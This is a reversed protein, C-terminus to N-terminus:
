VGGSTYLLSVYNPGVAVHRKEESMSQYWERHVNEHWEGLVLVSPHNKRGQSVYDDICFEYVWENNTAALCGRRPPPRVRDSNPVAGILNINMWYMVFAFTM